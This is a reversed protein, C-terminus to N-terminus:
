SENQGGVWKLMFLTAFSDVHGEFYFVTVQHNPKFKWDYDVRDVLGQAKCWNSMEISIAAGTRQDTWPIEVRTM